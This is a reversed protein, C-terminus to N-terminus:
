VDGRERGRRVVFGVVDRCREVDLADPVRFLQRRPTEVDCLECDGAAGRAVPMPGGLDVFLQGCDRCTALRKAGM